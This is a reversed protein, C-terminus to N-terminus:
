YMSHCTDLLERVGWNIALLALRDQEVNDIPFKAGRKLINYTTGFHVGSEDNEDKKSVDMGYQEFRVTGKVTM